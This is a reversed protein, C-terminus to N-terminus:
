GEAGADEVLVLRMARREDAAYLRLVDPTEIPDAMGRVWRLLEAIYAANEPAWREDTAIRHSLRTLAASGLGWVPRPRTIFYLADLHFRTEPDRRHRRFSTPWIRIREGDQEHVAPRDFHGTPFTRTRFEDADYRHRIGTLWALDRQRHRFGGALDDINRKAEVIAIVEGDLGDFADWRRPPSGRGGDDASRDTSEVRASDQETPRRPSAARVIVQDLEIGAAGLTVGRLIRLEGPACGCADALEPLLHAHTVALAVDEFRAGQRGGRRGRHRTTAALEDEMEVLGAEARVADLRHRAADWAQRADSAQMADSLERRAEMERAAFADRKAIMEQQSDGSATEIAATLGAVAKAADAALKELRTIDAHEASRECARRAAREAKEASALEPHARRLDRIRCRLVFVPDRRWSNWRQLLWARFADVDMERVDDTREALIRRLEGAGRRITPPADM